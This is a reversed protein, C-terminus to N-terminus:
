GGGGRAVRMRGGRGEGGAMDMGAPMQMGGPGGNKHGPGGGAQPGEGEDPPDGPVPLAARQRSLDGALSRARDLAAPVEDPSVAQTRARPAPVARWVEAVPDDLEGPVNGAILLVDAEAPSPAAPWGGRGREGEAALG